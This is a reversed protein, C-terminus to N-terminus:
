KEEDVAKVADALSKGDQMAQSVKAAYNLQAVRSGPGSALDSGAGQLRSALEYDARRVINQGIKAAEPLAAGLIAEKVGGHAFGAGALAARGIHTGISHRGAAESTAREQLADKAPILVSMDRNLGRLEGVDVGSGKAQRDIASAYVNWIDKKVNGPIPMGEFAGKGATSKLGRMTDAGIHGFNGYESLFKARESRLINVAPLDGDKLRDGLIKDFEIAIDSPTVARQAKTMKDYLEDLRDAKETMTDDVASLAKAPSNKAKTAITKYLDPDRGFLERLKEDDPGVAKALKRTKGIGANQEGTTIDKKARALVRAPANESLKSAVGGGAGLTGSLAVGFPDSATERAVGLRNGAAGASLGAIAPAALEYSAIGRAAGLAAAGPLSTAKISGTAGKIVSGAGKTIASAAGPLAMGVGQGLERFNPATETDQAERATYGPDVAAAAKNGYGLTVVDGVGRISQRLRDSRPFTLEKKLEDIPHESANGLADITEGGLEGIASGVRSGFAAMQGFGRGIRSTVRTFIGPPPEAEEPKAGAKLAREYDSEVPRAGTKLAEDYDSM